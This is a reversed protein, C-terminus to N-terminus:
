CCDTNSPMQPGSSKTILSYCTNWLSKKSSPSRLTLEESLMAKRLRTKEREKSDSWWSRREGVETASAGLIKEHHAEHTNREKLLSSFLASLIVLADDARM